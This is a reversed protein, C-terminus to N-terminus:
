ARAVRCAKSIAQLRRLAISSCQQVRRAKQMLLTFTSKSQVSWPYAVPCILTQCHCGSGDGREVELRSQRPMNCTMTLMARCPDRSFKPSATRYSGVWFVYRRYRTATASGSGNSLRHPRFALFKAGESMERRVRRHLWPCFPIIDPPNCCIFLQLQSWGINGARVSIAWRVLIETHRPTM